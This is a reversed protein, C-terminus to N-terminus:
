NLNEYLGNRGTHYIYIIINPAPTKGDNKFVTGTVKLKPSKEEFFPLTDTPTLTRNGFELLAECGECNGGVLKEKKTQCSVYISGILLFFLTYLLPKKYM